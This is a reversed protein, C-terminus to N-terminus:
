LQWYALDLFGYPSIRNPRRSMPRSHCSPPSADANLLSWPPLAIGHDVTVQALIAVTSYIAPPLSAPPRASGGPLPPALWRHNATPHWGIPLLLTGAPPPPSCYPALRPPPNATLHWSLPCYPALPRFRSPPLPLMALPSAVVSLRAM